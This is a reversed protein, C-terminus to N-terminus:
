NKVLKGTASKGGITMKYFYFGPMQQSLDVQADGVVEQHIIKQGQVNFLEFIGAGKQNRISLSSEVPNPYFSVGELKNDETNIVIQESYIYTTKNLLVWTSNSFDWEFYSDIKLM